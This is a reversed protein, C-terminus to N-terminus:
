RIRMISLYRDTQKKLDQLTRKDREPDLMKAEAIAQEFQAKTIQIDRKGTLIEELNKEITTQIASNRSHLAQGIKQELQENAIKAALPILASQQIPLLLTPQQIRLFRSIDVLRMGESQFAKDKYPNQTFAQEILGSETM